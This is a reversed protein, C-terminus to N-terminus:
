HELLLIDSGSQDLQAYLFSKGDPSVSLGRPGKTTRILKQFGSKGPTLLEIWEPANPGGAPNQALFYIGGPGLAWDSWRSVSDALVMQEPEAGQPEKRWVATGPSKTYYLYRGDPSELARFGGGRTIQVPEGGGVPVRYVNWDGSRTSAFYVFRGDRSWTPVAENSPWTTLREPKRGPEADILYVDSQGDIRVDYALRRGDPSWAASGAPTSAYDTIRVPDGTGDAIWVNATGSRDTVFAIRRGDPSYQPGWDTSRSEIVPQSSGGSSRWINYDDRYNVYAVRDGAKSLAPFGLSGPGETLKIATGKRLPMEWLSLFVGQRRSAVIFGKGDATWSFGRVERDDFTVRRPEGGTSPAVYIDGISVTLQRLFAIWKGDPSFAPEVDAVVNAPPHTLSRKKGSAVDIVVINCGRNSETAEASALELGDPSWSLRPEDCLWPDQRNLRGLRRLQAGELTLAYVENFRHSSQIFAIDKGDPSWAPRSDELSDNTLRTPAQAGIAETYIQRAGGDAGGRAFAIRTGDPSFSPFNQYGSASIFPASHWPFRDSRARSLVIWGISALVVAGVGGLIMYPYRRDAKIVPVKVPEPLAIGNLFRRQFTPVYSGKPLEIRVPDASGESAYYDDLKLRLRRASTRVINDQKPDYSPPRDFIAVGIATEKLSDIRGAAAQKVLFRLLESLREAHLFAESRLINELSTAIESPAVIGERM